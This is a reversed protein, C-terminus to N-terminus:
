LKVLLGIEFEYFFPDIPLARYYDMNHTYHYIINVHKNVQFNVNISSVWRPKLFEDFSKRIPLQLYNAASLDIGNAIAFTSKASLNLRLNNRDVVSVTDSEFTYGSLKTNWKEVEYFLGSSFYLDDKKKERFQFRANCGWLIRKELGWVGNWQYQTYFDPAVKRKDNDRARLQFYGNNELQTKGNLTIDTNALAILVNKRHNFYYDYEINTAFDIIDRKQKDIVFNFRCGFVSKRGSTDEALNRDINLIQANCLNAAVCFTFALINGRRM